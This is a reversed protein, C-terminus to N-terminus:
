GVPQDNEAPSSITTASEPVRLMLLITALIMLGGLALMAAIPSIQQSTALTYLGVSLL